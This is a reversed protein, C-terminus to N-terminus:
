PTTLNDAPRTRRAAIMRVDGPELACCGAARGVNPRPAAEGIIGPAAVDARGCTLRGRKKPHGTPHGTEAQATRTSRELRLTARAGHRPVRLRMRPPTRLVRGRAPPLATVMARPPARNPAKRAASSRGPALTFRAFTATPTNARRARISRRKKRRRVRRANQAALKGVTSAARCLSSGTPPARAGWVGLPARSAGRACEKLSEPCPGRIVRM